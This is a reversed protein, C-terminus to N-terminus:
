NGTRLFDLMACQMRILDTYVECKEVEHTSCRIEEQLNKPKIHYRCSFEIGGELVDISVYERTLDCKKGLSFIAKAM